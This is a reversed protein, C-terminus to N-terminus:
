DEPSYEVKFVAHTYNDRCDENNCLAVYKTGEQGEDPYKKRLLGKVEEPTYKLGCDQCVFRM